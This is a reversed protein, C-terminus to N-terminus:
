EVEVGIEDVGVFGTVGSLEECFILLFFKFLFLDGLSM